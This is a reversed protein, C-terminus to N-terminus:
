FSRAYSLESRILGFCFILHSTVSHHKKELKNSIDRFINIRFFRFRVVIDLILHKGKFFDSILEIEELKLVLFINLILM